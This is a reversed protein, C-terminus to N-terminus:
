PHCQHPSTQGERSKQPSSGDFDYLALLITVPRRRGLVLCSVLPWTALIGISIMPNVKRAAPVDTGSRMVDTITAFFPRPSIATELEIPLYSKIPDKPSTQWVRGM